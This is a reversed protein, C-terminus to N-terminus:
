VAQRLLREIVGVDLVKGMIKVTGNIAIAPSLLVGYKAITEKATINLKAVEVKYGESSLKMAAKRANEETKKCRACPPNVGIVEVKLEKM